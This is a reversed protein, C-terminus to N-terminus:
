LDKPPEWHEWGPVPEKPPYKAVKQFLMHMFLFLPKAKMVLSVLDEEDSANFHQHFMMDPPAFVTGHSWDVRTIEDNDYWLLSYSHGTVCMVHFDAGHRHGKKYTGVPMESMHAHMAGDALVFMM